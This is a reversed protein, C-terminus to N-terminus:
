ILSKLFEVTGKGYQKNSVYVPYPFDSPNVIGQGGVFGAKVVLGKSHIHDGMKMDSVSDGVVIYENARIHKKDVWDLIRRAGLHKGVHKSEIDIAITTPDVKFEEILNHKELLQQLKDVLPKRRNQYSSIDMGNLMELSYMSEKPDLNACISAIEPNQALLEIDERLSNPISLSEDRGHVWEGDKYEAWSGGKEGVIFFNEFASEGVRGQLIPFINNIAWTTSRGTNFTVINGNEFQSSILDILEPETVKKEVPDTIVGDVDFLYVRSVNGEVKPSSIGTDKGEM